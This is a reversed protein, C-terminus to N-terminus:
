SGSPRSRMRERLAPLNAERALQAVLHETVSPVVANGFQRYAQVDSVPFFFQRPHDSPSVTAPRAGRTPRPFGMLRGCETPTLRRPSRNPGRDILIESGDKYYRASLTRSVDGPGVKSYGFGNGAAEHRRRYEQLYTWLPDTLIYRAEYQQELISSLLPGEGDPAAPWDFVWLDPHAARLLGVIFTRERHQPVWRRADIVRSDVHYLPALLEIIRAFTRGGDHSRLHKVNELLILLPRKVELIRIIEFFLNGSKEDEFGHKM